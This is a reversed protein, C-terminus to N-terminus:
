RRWRQWWPRPKRLDELQTQTRDLQQTLQMVITDHRQSSDSFERELAVVRERLWRNEDSLQAKEHNEKGNIRQTVNSLEKELAEIRGQLWHNENMLRLNENSLQENERNDIENEIKDDDIIVYSVGDIKKSELQGNKIHRYVTALGVGFRKAYEKATMRM